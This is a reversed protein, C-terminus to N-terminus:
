KGCIWCAEILLCYSLSQTLFAYFITFIHVVSTNKFEQVLEFCGSIM